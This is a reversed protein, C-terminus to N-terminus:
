SRGILTLFPMKPCHELSECYNLLNETEPLTLTDDMTAALSTKTSGIADNTETAAHSANSRKRQPLSSRRTGKKKNNATRSQENTTM